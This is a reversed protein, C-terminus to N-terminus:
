ALALLRGARARLAARGTPDTGFMPPDDSYFASM